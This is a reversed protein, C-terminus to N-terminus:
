AKKAAAAKKATFRDIQVPVIFANSYTKMRIFGRDPTRRLSEVFDEFDYAIGGGAVWSDADDGGKFSLLNDYYAFVGGISFAGFALNLGGQYITQERQDDGPQQEVHGEFSAGLGATLGWSDRALEYTAYVSANHRSESDSNTPM